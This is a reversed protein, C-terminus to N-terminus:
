GTVFCFGVREPWVTTITAITTSTAMTSHTRRDRVMSCSFWVPLSSVAMVASRSLVALSRDAACLM